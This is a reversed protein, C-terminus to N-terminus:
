NHISDQSLQQFQQSRQNLAGINFNGLHDPVGTVSNQQHHINGGHKYKMKSGTQLLSDNMRGSGPSHAPLQTSKGAGMSNMIDNSQISNMAPLISPLITSNQQLDTGAQTEDVSRQHLSDGALFDSKRGAFKITDSSNKLSTIQKLSSTNM